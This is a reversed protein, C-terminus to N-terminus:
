SRYFISNYRYVEEPSQVPIETIGIWVIRGFNERIIMQSKNEKPCLLDVLDENYLELFSVGVQYSYNGNKVKEEQLRSFLDEIARPLIGKDNDNLQSVTSTGM